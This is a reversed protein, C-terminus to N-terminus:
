LAAMVLVVVVIVAIGVLMATIGAALGVKNKRGESLRARWSARTRTDTM